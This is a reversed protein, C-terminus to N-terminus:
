LTKHLKNMSVPDSISLPLYHFSLFKPFRRTNQVTIVTPLNDIPFNNNKDHKTLNKFKGYVFSFCERMQM